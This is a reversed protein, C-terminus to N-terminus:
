NLICNETRTRRAEVTAVVIAAGVLGAGDDTRSFLSFRQPSEVNTL